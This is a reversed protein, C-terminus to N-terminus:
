SWFTSHCPTPGIARRVLQDRRHPPLDSHSVVVLLDVDRDPTEEGRARLGFVYIREPKLANVTRQAIRVLEIADAASVGPLKRQKRETPM